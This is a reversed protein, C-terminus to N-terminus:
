LRHRFCIIFIVVEPPIVLTYTKFGDGLHDGFALHTLM